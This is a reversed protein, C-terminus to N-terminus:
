RGWEAIVYAAVDATQEESLGSIATMNGSGGTIIAEVDAATKDAVVTSLDPGVGEVGSGDAGHCASCSSTYIAAGPDESDTDDGNCAVLTLGLFLLRMSM